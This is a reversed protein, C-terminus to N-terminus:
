EDSLSTAVENEVDKDNPSNVPGTNREENVDDSEAARAASSAGDSGPRKSAEETLDFNKNSNGPM